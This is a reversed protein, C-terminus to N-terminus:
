MMDFLSSQNPMGQIDSLAYWEGEGLMAQVTSYPVWGGYVPAADPNPGDVPYWSANDYFVVKRTDDFGTFITSHGGRLPLAIYGKSNRPANPDPVHNSGGFVPEGNYIATIVDQVTKVPVADKVPLQDATPELWNPLGAGPLGWKEALQDDPKTLDLTNGQPDTYTNRLLVGYKMVGQLAWSVVCGDKRGLRGQGIEVRGLAFIAESAPTGPFKEDLMQLSIRTCWLYVCVRQVAKSVCTGTTQLEHFDTGLVNRTYDWLYRKQGTPDARPLSGYTKVDCLMEFNAKEIPDIIAGCLHSNPNSPDIILEALNTM